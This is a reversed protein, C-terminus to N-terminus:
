NGALPSHTYRYPPAHVQRVSSIYRAGSYDSASIDQGAIGLAGLSAREFVEIPVRSAQSDPQITFTGPWFVRLGHDRLLERGRDDLGSEMDVGASLIDDFFIPLVAIDDRVDKGSLVEQFKATLSKDGEYNLTKNGFTHNLGCDQFYVRCKTEEMHALANRALIDNRIAMGEASNADIRSIDTSGAYSELHSRTLPDQENLHYLKKGGSIMLKIAADNGRLSVGWESCYSVIAKRALSVNSLPSRGSLYAAALAVGDRDRASIEAIERDTCRLDFSRSVFLGLSNSGIEMGYSIPFLASDSCSSLLRRRLHQMVGIRLATHPVSGHTESAIVVVRKGQRELATIKHSIANIAPRLDRTSAPLALTRIGNIRQFEISIEDRM